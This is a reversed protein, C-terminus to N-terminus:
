YNRDPTAFFINLISNRVGSGPPLQERGHWSKRSFSNSVAFAYGSNPLFAFQKVKEFRGHWSYLGKLSTLRRRYVATGLNLQSRDTPLYLQMTVIKARGDPHPPIEYGELDRFLSPKSYSVIEEVADRRVGFRRSLDAALKRFVMRKLEPAALATAVDEWIKRQPEPLQAPGDGSLAFVDRTSMGQENKHKTESLPKYCSPAPMNAMMESYVDDPFVSDLYFHSYPEECVPTRDLRDLMHDLIVSAAQRQRPAVVMAM